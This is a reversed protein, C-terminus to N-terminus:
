GSTTNHARSASLRAPLSPLATVSALCSPRRRTPSHPTHPFDPTPLRFVYLSIYLSMSLPYPLRAVHPMNLSAHLCAVRGSSLQRMGSMSMTPPPNAGYDRRCRRRHYSVAADHGHCLAHSGQCAVAASITDRHRTDRCDNPKNRSPQSSHPRRTWRAPDTTANQHGPRAHLPQPALPYTTQDTRFRRSPSPSTSTGPQWRRFYDAMCNNLFM